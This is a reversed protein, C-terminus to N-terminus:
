LRDWLLAALGVLMALKLAARAGALQRGLLRWVVALVGLDLLLVVLGYRRGYWGLFWPALSAPVFLILASAALLFTTEAGHVIPLTRRGQVRDGAVDELDKVLERSFHLLTGMAFPVLGARPWGAALAGYVPPLSAVVAVALNGALGHQKLLPSYVLMVLLAALGLGFLRTDVWWAAFLGAAGLLGGLLIAANVSIRGSVLPRGPRNVRDADLDALDNAINGAAGLGFASAMAWAVGPAVAFRGSVLVGGIAVGLAGMLLNRLRVLSALDAPLSRPM